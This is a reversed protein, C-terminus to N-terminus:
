WDKELRIPQGKGKEKKDRLKKEEQNLANLIQEAQQETLKSPQPQPKQQEGQDKKQEGDDPKNKDDGNKQEDKKDDKQDEKQDDKKDKKQDDKKDQQDKKDQNQKMAQAYALNYKTQQANPNEKLAQKFYKIAEDWKKQELYTNGINHNSASRLSKDKANRGAAEFQKSAAEYNKQQYLADGLNFQTEKNKKEKLALEYEAAAEKYQGSAYLQNGKYAHANQIQAYGRLSFLLLIIVYFRKM